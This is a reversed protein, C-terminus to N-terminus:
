PTPLARRWTFLWRELLRVLLDSSLGLLSYLLLGVMIVNTQLLQEANNMMAGIGSTANIQESAILVLWAVGIAMRLGAMAQPLAGPLIVERVLALRRLGYARAAEILRPDVSRIGAYLSLYIPFSTAFAELLVKPVEGVGFWLIMLPIIALPPMARLLHMPADVLQEGLRSFGAVVALVGGIATGLALGLAVRRVSVLLDAQLEGSHVLQGFTTAVTEPTPLSNAPILHISSVLQWIGFMALPGLVRVWNHKRRGSRARKASAGVVEEIATGDGAALPGGPASDELLTM